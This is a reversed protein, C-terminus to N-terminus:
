DGCGGEKGDHPEFQLCCTCCGVLIGSSAVACVSRDFDLPDLNLTDDIGFSSRREDKVSSDPEPGVSVTPLNRW